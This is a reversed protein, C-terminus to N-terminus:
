DLTQISQGKVISMVLFHSNLNLQEEVENANRGANKNARLIEELKQGQPSTKAYVKMNPADFGMKSSLFKNAFDIRHGTGGHPKVVVKENGKKFFFVGAAGEGSRTVSDINQWTSPDDDWSFRQIMQSLSKVKPQYTEQKQRQLLGQTKRNGINRQLNLLDNVQLLDPNSQARQLVQNINPQRTHAPLRKTKKQSTKHAQHSTKHAQNM